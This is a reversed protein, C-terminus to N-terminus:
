PNAGCAMAADCFLSVVVREDYREEARRRAALGLGRRENPNSILRSIAEIMGRVDGFPVLIGTEGDAIVDRCGRVAFAVAPACCMAAEVIVRGFSEKYSPHCLIDMAPLLSPMDRRLGLMSVASAVGYQELRSLFEERCPGRDGPHVDGIVVFHVGTHEVCICRVIEALEILGKEKVLRGVFGVLVDTDAIGLAARAARRRTQITMLDRFPGLDIGNGIFSYVPRKSFIVSRTATLYDERNVFMIADCLQSLLAETVKLVVRVAVNM